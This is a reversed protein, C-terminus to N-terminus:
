VGEGEDLARRLERRVAAADAQAETRFQAVELRRRIARLHIAARQVAADPPSQQLNLIWAIGLVVVLVLLVGM